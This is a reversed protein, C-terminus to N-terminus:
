AFIENEVQLEEDTDIDLASLLLITGLTDAYM